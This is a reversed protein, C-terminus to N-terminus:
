PTEPKGPRAPARRAQGGWAPRAHTPGDRDLVDQATAAPSRRAQGGARALPHGGRAPDDLLVDGRALRHVADGGADAVQGGDADRGLSARRSWCSRSFLWATPGRGAATSRRLGPRHEQQARVDQGLPWEPTRGSTTSRSSPISSRRPGDPPGPVPSAPRRPRGRAAPGGPGAGSRGRRPPGALAAAARAASARAAAPRAGSSSSALSPRARTLPVWPISATPTSASPRAGLRQGLGGVDGRRHRDLGHRPVSRGNSSRSCASRGCGPWAASPRSGEGASPALSIM